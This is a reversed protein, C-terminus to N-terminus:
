IHEKFGFGHSRWEGGAKSIFISPTFAIYSPINCNYQVELKWTLYDFLNHVIENFFQIFSRSLLALTVKSTAHRLDDVTIQSDSLVFDGTPFRALPKRGLDMVVEIM